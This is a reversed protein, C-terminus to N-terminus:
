IHLWTRIAMTPIGDMKSINRLLRVATALEKAWNAMSAHWNDAAAEITLAAISAVYHELWERRELHTMEKVNKREM